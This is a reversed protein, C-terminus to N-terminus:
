GNNEVKEVRLVEFDFGELPMRRVTCIGDLCARAFNDYATNHRCRYKAVQGFWLFSDVIDRIKKEDMGEMARALKPQIKKASDHYSM